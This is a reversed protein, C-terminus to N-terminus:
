SDTGAPGFELGLQQMMWLNDEQIWAEVIGGDTILFKGIWGYEFHANGEPVNM